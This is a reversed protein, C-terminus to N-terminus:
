SSIAPSRRQRAACIAPKSRTGATTRACSSASDSSSASISFM